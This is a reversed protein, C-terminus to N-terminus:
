GQPTTSGDSSALTESQTESGSPTRVEAGGEGSQADERRQVTGEQKTREGTDHIGNAHEEKKTINFGLAVAGCAHCKIEMKKEDRHIEYMKSKCKSCKIRQM